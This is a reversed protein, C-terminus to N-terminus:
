VATTLHGFSAAPQPDLWLVDDGFWRTRALRCDFAHVSAVAAALRAILQVDVASPAVFPYLVSVHAPIGCGAAPDLRDRHARVVPEADPIPVIIATETPSAADPAPNLYPVRCVSDM